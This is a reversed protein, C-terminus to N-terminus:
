RDGGIAAPNEVNLLLVVVFVDHEDVLEVLVQEGTPATHLEINFPSSNCHSDSQVGTLAPDSQGDHISFRHMVRSRSAEAAEWRRDIPLFM